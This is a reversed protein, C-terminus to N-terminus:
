RALKEASAQLASAADIERRLQAVEARLQRVEAAGRGSEGIDAPFPNTATSIPAAGESQIRTLQAIAMRLQHIEIEQRVVVGAVVLTAVLFLITRYNKTM